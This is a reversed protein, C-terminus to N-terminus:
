LLTPSLPHKVGTSAVVRSIGPPLNGISANLYPEISKTFLTDGVAEKAFNGFRLVEAPLGANFYAILADRAIINSIFDAIGFRNALVFAREGYWASSEALFRSRFDNKGTEARSQKYLVNAREAMETFDNFRPDM